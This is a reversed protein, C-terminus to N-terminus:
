NGDECKSMLKGDSTVTESHYIFVSCQQLFPLTSAVACEGQTEGYTAHTSTCKCHISMEHNKGTRSSRGGKREESTQWSERAELSHVSSVTQHASVPARPSPLIVGRAQVSHCLVSQADEKKRQRWKWSFSLTM